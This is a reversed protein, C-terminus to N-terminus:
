AILARLEEELNLNENELIEKIRDKIIRGEIVVSSYDESSLDRTYESWCSHCLDVYKDEDVLLAGHIDSSGYEMSMGCNSCPLLYKEKKLYTKLEKEDKFKHFSFDSNDRKHEFGIFSNEEKFVSIRYDKPSLLAYYADEIHKTKM